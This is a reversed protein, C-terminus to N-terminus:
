RPGSTPPTRPGELALGICLAAVLSVQLILRDLSTSLHFRLDLTTFLYPVLDLGLPVIVALALLLTERRRQFALCLLAVPAGFWLLSWAKTLAFQAGMASLIPGLRPLNARLHELTLAQFTAAQVADVVQLVVRWVLLVALGPLAFLVTRRWGRWGHALAALLILSALLLVGEQKVWPLLAGCAVAVPWGGAVERFRWALLANVGGLYVAGLIFDAYGKLLGHGADCMWPVFLPLLATLAAVWLRGSLRFAGSWLLAIASAYFVPFLVKVATQHCDGVWLYVWLETFPLYLPYSPHYDVRTADSFYAAPLSGGALFAHRAKAEWIVFGDWILSDRFTMAGFYLVPLLALLGIGKEWRPAAGLGTEIRVGDRVRKVALGGLLVTVAAVVGFLAPGSLVIGGLALSASVVGAGLLWAIGFLEAALIPHPKRWLALTVGSGAAIITLIALLVAPAIM